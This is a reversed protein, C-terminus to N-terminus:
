WFAERNTLYMIAMRKRVLLRVGMEGKSVVPVATRIDHEHRPNLRWMVVVEQELRWTRGTKAAGV